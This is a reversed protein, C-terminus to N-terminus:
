NLPIPKYTSVVADVTNLYHDSILSTYPFTYACEEDREREQRYTHSYTLVDITTCQSGQYRKMGTHAGM